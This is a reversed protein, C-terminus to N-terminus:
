GERKVDLTEIYGAYEWELPTFLGPYDYEYESALTDVALEADDTHDGYAEMLADAETLFEYYASEYEASKVADLGDDAKWMSGDSDYRFRMM